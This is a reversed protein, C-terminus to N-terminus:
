NHNADNCRRLYNHIYFISIIGLFVLMSFVGFFGIEEASLQCVISGTSDVTGDGAYITWNAEGYEDGDGDDLCDGYVYYENPGVVPPDTTVINFCGTTNFLCEDVHGVPNCSLTGDDYGQTTCNHGNLNANDCEENLGGANPTDIVGDGCVGLVPGGSPTSNCCINIGYGPTGCESVHSNTQLALSFLCFEDGVCAAADRCTANQVHLVQGYPSGGMTGLHANTQFSLRAVNNSASFFSMNRQSDCCLVYDYGPVPLVSGHSNTDSAMWFGSVIDGSSCGPGLEVTCDAASVVGFSFLFLVLTLVVRKM